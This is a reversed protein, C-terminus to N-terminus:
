INELLELEVNAIDTAKVNNLGLAILILESAETGIERWSKYGEITLFISSLVSGSILALVASLQEERFLYQKQELGAQLDPLLSQEGVWLGMLSKSSFAFKCIFRGWEPEEYARRIYMRIGKSIRIASNPESGLTKLVRANMEQTLQAAIDELLTDPNIDNNYITGRAVGSAEALESITIHSSGKEAFIKLAAQHIRKQASSLHM